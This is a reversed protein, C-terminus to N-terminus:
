LIKIIMLARKIISYLNSKINLKYKYLRTESDIRPLKDHVLNLGSEKVVNEAWFVPFVVLTAVLHNFSVVRLTIAGM